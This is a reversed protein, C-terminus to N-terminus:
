SGGSHFTLVYPLGARHAANMAMPAVLTHYGQVHVVDAEADRVLAHLEPAAHVDGARPYAAVRHVVVGREIQESAESPDLVTTLVTVNHGRAALRESLESVHAETGGIYPPFRACVMLVRLAPDPPFHSM